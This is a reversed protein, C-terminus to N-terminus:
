LFLPQTLVSVINQPREILVVVVGVTCAAADHADTGECRQPIKSLRWAQASFISSACVWRCSTVTVTIGSSSQNTTTPLLCPVPSGVASRNAKAPTSSALGYMPLSSGDSFAVVMTYPAHKIFLVAISDSRRHVCAASAELARPHPPPTPDRAAREPWHRGAPM